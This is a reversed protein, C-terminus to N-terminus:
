RASFEEFSEEAHEGGSRRAITTSFSARTVLPTAPARAAVSRFSGRVAATRFASHM